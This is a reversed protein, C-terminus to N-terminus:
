LIYKKLLKIIINTDFNNQTLIKYIIKKPIFQYDIIEDLMNNNIRKYNLLIMYILNYKTFVKIDKNENNFIIIYNYCLYILKKVRDEFTMSINDSNFYTYNSESIDKDIDSYDDVLQSLLIFKSCSEVIEVNLHTNTFYMLFYSVAFSKKFSYELIKEESIEKKKQNDNAENLIHIMYKIYNYIYIHENQNYKDIFIEYNSKFICAKNILNESFINQPIIINNTPNDAINIFWKIFIKKETKDITEDDMIDDLIFYSVIFFQIFITDCELFIKITEELNRNKLYISIIIFFITAIIRLIDDDHKLLNNIDFIPKIINRIKNLIDQYYHSYKSIFIISDKLDKDINFLKLIDKHYKFINNKIDNFNDVIFTTTLNDNIVIKKLLKNVKLMFKDKEKNSFTKNYINEPSRLEFSFLEKDGSQKSLNM